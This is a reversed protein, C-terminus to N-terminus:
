ARLQRLEQGGHGEPYPGTEDSLCVGLLLVQWVIYPDGGLHRDIAIQHPEADLLPATDPQPHPRQEVHVGQGRGPFGRDPGFLTPLGMEDLVGDHEGLARLDKM